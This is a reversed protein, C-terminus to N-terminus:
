NGIRLPVTVVSAVPTGSRTRAPHFQYALMRELLDRRYGADPVPPDIEVRTVRGDAAVWFRIRYTRGAVAGPVRGLPPLILARPSAVSIYDGGGGTGPGLVGPGPEAGPGAGASDGPRAPATDALPQAPPAPLAAPPTEIPTPSAPPLVPQAVARPRVVRTASQEGWRPLLFAVPAGGGGRGM